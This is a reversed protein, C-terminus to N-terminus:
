LRKSLKAGYSRCEEEVAEWGDGSARVVGPIVRMRHHTGFAVELMRLCDEGDKRTGASTFCGGVKNALDRKRYITISEDILKKVQWAMNSFYTSSGVVIGDARKLDSLQCEEVRKLEVTVGQRQAGTAIAEAMRRTNGSNTYYMILLTKDAMTSVKVRM